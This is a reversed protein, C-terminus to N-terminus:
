QTKKEKSTQQLTRTFTTGRKIYAHHKYIQLETSTHINTKNQAKHAKMGSQKCRYIGLNQRQIVMLLLLLLSCVTSGFFYDTKVISIHPNYHTSFFFFSSNERKETRKKSKSTKLLLWQSLFPNRKHPHPSSANDTSM